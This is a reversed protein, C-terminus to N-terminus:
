GFTNGYKARAFPGCHQFAGFGKGLIKAGAVIDRRGFIIHEGIHFIGNGIQVFHACGIHDLGVAQRCAFAHHNRLRFGIRFHFQALKERAFKTIGTGTDHNFFKHRAM